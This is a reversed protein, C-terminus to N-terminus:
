SNNKPRTNQVMYLLTYISLSYPTFYSFLPAFLFIPLPVLIWMEEGWHFLNEELSSMGNTGKEISFIQVLLSTFSTVSENSLNEGIFLLRKYMYKWSQNSYFINHYFYISSGHNATTPSQISHIFHPLSLRQLHLFHLSHSARILSKLSALLLHTRRRLVM